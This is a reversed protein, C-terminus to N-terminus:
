PRRVEMVWIDSQREETAFFFTGNGVTFNNRTSPYLLPDVRVLLQATGGAAPVSYLAAGGRADRSFFYILADNGWVIRPAVAGAASTDVVIREAGSDAPIIRISGGERNAGYAISKGNPSWQPLYGERSLQKVEGWQGSSNRHVTWLGLTGFDTFALANGDPSWSAASEQGRSHTVQQVGGGDLRMVWIDRSGSRWSHFAIEKGDRSIVPSFDAAPATTLREPEGGALPIRFIDSNGTLDSDYLLWKGDSLVVMSEIYENANTVRKAGVTTIPPNAPIPLSWISNRITYQSYALRAGDASLSITHAGLGTSLRVPRRGARGDDTIPVGYVDRPGDRDSVFYLLRGDASWAPSHNLSVSDTVATLAGDRVRCLVITSPSKNGFTRARGPTSYWRNGTACAIFAGTPSWVCRAPEVMRALMRVPTDREHIFLSDGRTFALTTGDHSWAASTIPSRVDGPAEPRAPGGGAPASYVGARSLFLIRLGDPSWSPDIEAATTDGTLPVARGEGVSRVMVHMNQVPGNAYAVSRGDPSMAPTVELGRDWTVHMDRGFVIPPARGGGLV